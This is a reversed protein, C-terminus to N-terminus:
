QRELPAHVQPVDRRLARERVLVWAAYAVLGGLTVSYGAVVYVTV